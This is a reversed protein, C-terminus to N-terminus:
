EGEGVTIRLVTSAGSAAVGAANTWGPQLTFAEVTGALIPMSGDSASTSTGGAVAVVTDDGFELFAVATGTNAVRVTRPQQAAPLNAPLAVRSSTATVALTATAIPNFPRLM